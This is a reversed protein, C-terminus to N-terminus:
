EGDHDLVLSYETLGVRSVRLRFYPVAHIVFLELYRLLDRVDVHFDDARPSVLRLRVSLGPTRGSRRGCKGM